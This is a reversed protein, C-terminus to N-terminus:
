PLVTAVIALWLAIAILVSVAIGRAPALDGRDPWARTTSGLALSWGNGAVPSANAGCADRVSGGTSISLTQV